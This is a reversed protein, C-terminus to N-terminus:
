ILSWCSGDLQYTQSGSQTGSSLLTREKVDFSQRDIGQSDHNSFQYVTIKDGVAVNPSLHLQGPTSVFDGASDFSGFRYDGGSMTSDDWGTVYVRLSDGAVGVSDNLLFYM